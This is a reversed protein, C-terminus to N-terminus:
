WDPLLEGTTPSSIGFVGRDDFFIGIYDLGNFSPTAAINHAELFAECADRTAFRLLKSSAQEATQTMTANM